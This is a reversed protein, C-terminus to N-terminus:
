GKKVRYSQHCAGCNSGLVGVQAKLADVDGPAAAVAAKVDSLYKDEAAKFGAMDEWIKPAATTDGADSGKPFLAEVDFKEANAQVAQLQTLVAAADFPEEGKVVKALGGVIKGREKMLAQRDLIPDAFAASAALALMSIAIVLKRM